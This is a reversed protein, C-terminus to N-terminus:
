LGDSCLSCLNVEKLGHKLEDIEDELRELAAKHKNKEAEIKADTAAEMTERYEKQAQISLLM